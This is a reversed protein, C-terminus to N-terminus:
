ISSPEQDLWAWAKGAKILSILDPGVGFERALRSATGYPANVLQRRIYRVQAETLKALGNREGRATTGDRFRDAANDKATGYSLNCARNDARDKSGHLVQLGEPCPGIFAEAVLQHVPRVPGLKNKYLAVVRYGDGNLTLKLIRGRVRQRGWRSHAVFRDLGKVRGLDSVEYSGEWGVVPLWVEQM